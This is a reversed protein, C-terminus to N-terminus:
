FRMFRQMSGVRGKSNSSIDQQQKQMSTEWGTKVEVKDPTLPPFDEPIYVFIEVRNFRFFGYPPWLSEDKRGTTCTDVLYSYNDRLVRRVVRWQWVRTGAFSGDVPHQIYLTNCDRTWTIASVTGDSDIYDNQFDFCLSFKLFELVLLGLSAHLLHQSRKVFSNILLLIRFSSLLGHRASCIRNWRVLHKMVLVLARYSKFERKYGNVTRKLCSYDVPAACLDVDVGTLVLQFKVIPVRASSIIQVNKAVRRVQMQKATDQLFVTGNIHPPLSVALDIDSTGLNLGLSFSGHCSVKYSERDDAVHEYVVDEVVKVAASCQEIEGRTPKIGGYLGTLAATLPEVKRPVVEDLDSRLIKSPRCPVGNKLTVLASRRVESGTINGLSKGFAVPRAPRAASM